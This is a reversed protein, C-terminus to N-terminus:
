QNKDSYFWLGSESDFQLDLNARQPHDQITQDMESKIEVGVHSPADDPFLDIEQTEEKMIQVVIPKGHMWESTTNFCKTCVNKKMRKIFNPLDPSNDQGEKGCVCCVVPDNLAM